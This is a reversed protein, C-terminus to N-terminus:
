HMDIWNRWASGYGKYMFRKIENWNLTGKLIAVREFIEETYAENCIFNDRMGQVVNFHGLSIM